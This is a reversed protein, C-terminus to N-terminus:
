CSAALAIVMFKRTVGKEGWSAIDPAIQEMSEKNEEMTQREQRKIRIM